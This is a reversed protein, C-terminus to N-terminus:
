RSGGGTKWSTWYAEREVSSAEATPRLPRRVDVMVAIEDTRALDKAADVAGPQPGHHIGAPHFTVMGAAIGERSFFRGRHYFIVEDYDVNAHFFPVKLAAPDGTELPRPLFTCIAVGEAVFTAHATPPLHYRESSVPRIDKVHLRWVSLDGKWGAVDIPDFPYFVRTIERARQIRLEHERGDRVSAPLLAPDPVDIVDPDFLAHRGLLGREPIAVEAATEIVLFAAQDDARLRYTTGRPVVLYHGAEFDLAGYDCELTGRGAHVFLVEDADANRFAYGMAGRLRAFGLRVDDNELFASRAALWDDGAAGLETVGYARPRLPGEIRTWGVPPNRRYLHSARGSFGSRGIEEEVTGEPVGVHAQRTVLGRVHHM